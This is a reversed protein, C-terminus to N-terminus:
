WYYGISFVTKRDTSNRGTAPTKDWDIDFQGTASLNKRIPFRLGTQSRVFLKDNESLGMVGSNRHFVRTGLLGLKRSFDFTWSSASYDTDGQSVFDSSVYNASIEISLQTLSSNMFQRGLGLGITSRLNIDKFENEEGSLAVFTYWKKTLFKDFKLRSLWNNENKVGQTKGQNLLLELFFRKEGSRYSLESDLRYQSTETNGSTNSFGVDIRASRESNSPKDLFIFRVLGSEIKQNKNDESEVTIIGDDVTIIGKITQRKLGIYFPKESKLFKVESWAINIADAYSTHVTLTKDVLQTIDGTIRDGNFLYIEDSLM